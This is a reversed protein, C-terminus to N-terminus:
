CEFHSRSEMIKDLALRDLQIKGDLRTVPIVGRAILHEVARRTRGLHEAAGDVTLWRKRAPAQAETMKCIIAEAIQNITETDFM